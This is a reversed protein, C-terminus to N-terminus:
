YNCVGRPLNRQGFNKQRALCPSQRPPSTSNPLLFVFYSFSGCHSKAKSTVALATALKTNEALWGAPFKSATESPLTM